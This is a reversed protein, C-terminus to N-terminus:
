KLFLLLINQTLYCFHEPLQPALLFCIPGIVTKGTFKCMKKYMQMKEVM